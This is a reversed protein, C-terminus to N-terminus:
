FQKTGRDTISQKQKLDRGIRPSESDYENNYLLEVREKKTKLSM